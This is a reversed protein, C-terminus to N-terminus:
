HIVQLKPIVDLLDVIEKYSRKERLDHVLELAKASSGYVITRLYDYQRTILFYLKSIKRESIISLVFRDLCEVYEDGLVDEALDRATRGKYDRWTLDAGRKLLSKVFDVPMGEKIAEFLITQGKQNTRTLDSGRIIRNVVSVKSPKPKGCLVKYFNYYRYYSKIHNTLLVIISETSTIRLVYPLVSRSTLVSLNIKTSSM